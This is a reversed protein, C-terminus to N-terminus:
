PNRGDHKVSDVLHGRLQELACEILYFAQRVSTFSLQDAIERATCGCRYRLDLVDRELPTLRELGEGLRRFLDRTRRLDLDRDPQLAAQRAAQDRRAEELYALLRGTALGQRRAERDLDIARLTRDGVLAQLEGVLRWFDAPALTEDRGASWQIVEDPTRGEQFYLRFVHQQFEPRRQIVAPLRRRGRLHRQHDVARRVALTMLWTSLAAEGSYSELRGHYLDAFVDVTVNRAEERDRLIRIVAAQVLGAYAELFEHWAAVSGSM